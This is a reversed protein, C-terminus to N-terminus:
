FLEGFAWSLGPFDAQSQGIQHGCHRFEFGSRQERRLTQGALLFGDKLFASRALADPDLLECTAIRACERHAKM